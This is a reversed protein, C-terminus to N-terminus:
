CTGEASSRILRGRYNISPSEPVEPGEVYIFGGDLIECATTVLGRRIGVGVGCGRSSEM